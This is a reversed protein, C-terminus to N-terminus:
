PVDLAPNKSFFSVPLLKFGANHVTMVPWEEPRPIHTVGFTYWMVVDKDKLSRNQKVWKPLGDAQTMQNPYKGAAHNEAQVYPTAWFHHDIFGARQRVKSQPLVYPLSNEGPILAWGLSQGLANTLKSHTVVWKRSSAMNMSRRADLETGLPTTEMTFANSHPNRPGPPLSRVNFEAINNHGAEEVDFDLRFNFFHQHHPAAVFPAVLHSHGGGHHGGEEKAYKVGKALMIGTLMAEVQISGDQRFIWNFGYDYNGVTVISTVVLERGRRTDAKNNYFEFHKWLLAGDREYIALAKPTTFPKGFDDAFAADLLTANEPVDVGAELTDSLRGVGYEGEDFANRFVWNEATEGYPVVMESLSARYLISRKRGQDEYTVNHLVLGERPHLSVRFNWKQWSVEQGKLTFSPGDPQTIKLPKPKARQQGVGKADLDSVEPPLPSVGLDLVYEVKQNNVNVVAVVGEIPRAYGNLAAGKVYSLARVWRIKPSERPYLTGPAWPDVMIAEFDTLGRKKMAEQWRADARVIKPVNTLEEVTIAPQVGKVETWSVVEKKNLDAIAEFTRNTARDFVVAFAERRFAGGNYALVENKGPENLAISPFVSGAVFRKDASIITSASEIEASSLPDLPHATGSTSSTKTPMTSCSLFILALSVTLIRTM